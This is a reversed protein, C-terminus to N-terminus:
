ISSPKDVRPTEVSGNRDGSENCKRRYNMPTLGTWRKFARNFASVESYGLLFAVQTLTHAREALYDIAFRRRTDDMLKKFRIGREELRRELTRPSVGLKKAVRALTPDGERMSEAISKRVTTLLEDEKPVADLIQDLYRKVIPYLKGDAAPVQAEILSREIVLTNMAAGFLVPARFIRQHEGVREPAAHAFRVELPAWQSGIMMRVTNLILTMGHENSQRLDDIDLDTLMFCIYARDDEVACSWKASSDYVHLYREVNEIAAGITPSNLAVYILPGIHKPDFREGFHLGFCDDHTSRAAENLIAAFTAAPIFHDSVALVGCDLEAANLVQDPNGGAAAVMDLLGTAAAVSIM